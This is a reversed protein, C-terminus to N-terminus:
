LLCTCIYPTERYELLKEGTHRKESTLNQIDATHVLMHSISLFICKHPREVNLSKKLVDIEAQNLNNYWYYLRRDQIRLQILNRLMWFVKRWYTKERTLTQMDAYLSRGHMYLQILNKLMWSAKTWYTKERNLNIHRCYAEVMCTCNYSTEWCELLKEGIHRRLTLHHNIHRCYAEVMYTCNYTTACCKLLKEITHRKERTLNQIGATHVLMFSIGHVHIQILNRFIWTKERTLHRCYAEVICTCNQSTEWCEVNLVSKERTLTFIDAAYSCILPPIWM